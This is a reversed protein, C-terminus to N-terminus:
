PGPDLAADCGSGPQHGRVPVAGRRHPRRGASGPRLVADGARRRDEVAARAPARDGGRGVIKTGVPAQPHRVDPGPQALELRQQGWGDLGREAGGPRRASHGGSEEPAGGDGPLVRGPVRRRLRDAPGHGALSHLGEPLTGYLRVTFVVTAVFVLLMLPRHRLAWGLSRAYGRQAVNFSRDVGRDIRGWFGTPPTHVHTRMFRGCIMPTLTLSVAASVVIAMTLTMAFEHFLRGLIGGMFLLPIFVAVLSISISMVTFGIQRSGALAAELPRMGREMHRFINEIMVIADDVVFGVSITLAMLSFNDLSYGLFWMGALTGCLSLPVTVAAAITPMLRRMFLLVVLLVLGITILLTYQVDIVSARITTTRDAIVTLKIDPPMWSMLQPLLAKLRDVTEIVNAGASKSITLLIAPQRGDWAALRTNAVGNIVTAVDSLRLIAGGGAKLVLPAYEEAQSMQGNVGITEARDKSQFGGAPELVNAGRIATYVDQAALGAAALRVPDVQVRVAPKEAGNVSVQSVGEVQSLRQGLVTDAADYIQATSLTDSTLALTLIPMDAPNIKRYYPRQPLDSPLDATAANIAAQVDHAAGDIDRDIDFQIVISTAGTSNTSTIETVGPIEGLRRELPAAISNAM